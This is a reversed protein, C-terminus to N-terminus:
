SQPTPRGWYFLFSGVSWCVGSEVVPAATRWVSLLILPVYCVRGAHNVSRGVGQGAGKGRGDLAPSKSTARRAPSAYAVSGGSHRSREAALFVTSEM